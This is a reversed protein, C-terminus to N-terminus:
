KPKLKFLQTFSNGAKKQLCWRASTCFRKRTMHARGWQRIPLGRRRWSLFSKSRLTRPPLPHAAPRGRIVEAGRVCPPGRTVRSLKPGGPSSRPREEGHM